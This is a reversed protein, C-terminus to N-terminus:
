TFLSKSRSYQAVVDRGAGGRVEENDEGDM